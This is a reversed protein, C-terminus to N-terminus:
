TAGQFTHSIHVSLMCKRREKLNCVAYEYKCKNVTKVMTCICVDPQTRNFRRNGTERREGYPPCPPVLVPKKGAPAAGTSLWLDHKM